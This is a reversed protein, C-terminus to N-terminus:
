RPVHIIQLDCTASSRPCSDLEKRMQLIRKNRMGPWSFITLACLLTANQMVFKAFTVQRKSGTCNKLCCTRLQSSFCKPVVNTSPWVEISLDCLNQLVVTQLQPCHHLMDLVFKWDVQGGFKLEMHILNPFLPTDLKDLGLILNISYYYYGPFYKTMKALSINARVCKSLSTTVKGKYSPDLHYHYISIDKAQFDELSAACGNLLEIFHQRKFFHIRNLDLVKLSPLHVVLSSFADTVTANCLKLVVLTTITFVTCPVNTGLPVSIELNHVKLDRAAKLWTQSIPSVLILCLTKIPQHIGRGLIAANVLQIFSYSSRWRGLFRDESIDLNPLSYRLSRWRKSVLSAAFVDEIPLFSLIHCLLEDPLDSIRTAAALWFQKKMKLFISSLGGGMIAAAGCGHRAASDLHPNRKAKM